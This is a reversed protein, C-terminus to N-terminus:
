IIKNAKKYEQAKPSWKEWIQMFKLLTDNYGFWLQGSRLVSAILRVYRLFKSDKVYFPAVHLGGIVDDNTIPVDYGLKIRLPDFEDIWMVFEVKKPVKALYLIYNKFVGGKERLRFCLCFLPSLRIFRYASYICKSVLDGPINKLLADHERETIFQSLLSKQSEIGAYDDLVNLYLLRSMIEKSSDNDRYSDIMKLRVKPDIGLRSLFINMSNDQKSLLNGMMYTEVMEKGRVISSSLVYLRHLAEPTLKSGDTDNCEDWIILRVNEYASGQLRQTGNGSMWAFWGAVKATVSKKGRSNLKVDEKWYFKDKILIVPWISDQMMNQVAVLDQEHNRIFVFQANPERLHMERLKRALAWTKGINKKGYCLIANPYPNIKHKDLLKEIHEFRFKRYPNDTKFDELMIEKLDSEMRKELPTQSSLQKLEKLYQRQAKRYEKTLWRQRKFADEISGM